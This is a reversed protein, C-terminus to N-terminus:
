KQDLMKELADIRALLQKTAGIHAMKIQQFDVTMFDSETGGLSLPTAKVAHPFYQAVEDALFGLRHKDQVDYEKLYSDKYKYYRLPLGRIIEGCRDLDANEIEEKLAPDSFFSLAGYYNINRIRMDNYPNDITVANLSYNWKIIGNNFIIGNSTNPTLVPYNVDTVYAVICINAPGQTTMTWSFCNAVDGYLNNYTITETRNGGSGLLTYVNSASPSTFITYRAISTNDGGPIFTYQITLSVNSSPQTNINSLAGTSYTCTGSSGSLSSSSYHPRFQSGDGGYIINTTTTDNFSLYNSNVSPPTIGSYLQNVEITEVQLDSTQLSSIFINDIITSPCTIQFLTGNVSMSETVITSATVTDAVISSVLLSSDQNSLVTNSLDIYSPIASLNLAGTIFVSSVILSETSLNTITANDAYLQGTSLSTTSLIDANITSATVQATVTLTSINLTSAALNLSSLATVQINDASIDQIVLSGNVNSIATSTMQFDQLTQALIAMDIKLTNTTITDSVAINTTSISPVSVGSTIQLGSLDTYLATTGISISPNALTLTSFNASGQSVIEGTFTSAAITLGTTVLNDSSYLYNTSITDTTLSGGTIITDDATISSYSVVANSYNVVGGFTVPSSFYSPGQVSLAGKILASGESHLDGSNYLNGDVYFWNSNILSQVSTSYLARAPDGIYFGRSFVTSTFLNSNVYLLGTANLNRIYANEATISSVALNQPSYTNSGDAFGSSNAIYWTTPDQVVTTLFGYPQTITFRNTGDGFLVGATTSVVIQKSSFFDLTGTADRVTVTKGRGFGPGTANSLYVLAYSDAPMATTNALVVSTNNTVYIPPGFQTLSM